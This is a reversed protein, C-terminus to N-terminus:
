PFLALLEHGPHDLGPPPTCVAAFYTDAEETFVNVLSAPRVPTVDVAITKVPTEGYVFTMVERYTVDFYKRVDEWMRIDDVAEELMTCHKTPYDTQASASRKLARPVSHEAM